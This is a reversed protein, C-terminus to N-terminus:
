TRQARQPLSECADKRKEALGREVGVEFGLDGSV